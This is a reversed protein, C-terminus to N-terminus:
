IEIDQAPPAERLRGAAFWIGAAAALASLLPAAPAFFVGWGLFLVASAACSGLALGLSLVCTDRPRRFFAALAVLLSLVFAALLSFFGPIERLFEGRLFSEALAAQVAAQTAQEGTPTRGSRIAPGLSREPLDSAVICFSGAIERSLSSRLAALAEYSAMADSAPFNSSLFAGTEAFFTARAARWQALLSADAGALLEREIEQAMSRRDLLSAYDGRGEPSVSAEMGRLDEM